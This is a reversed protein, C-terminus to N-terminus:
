QQKNERDWLETATQLHEGAMATTRAADDILDGLSATFAMSDDVHELNGFQLSRDLEISLARLREVASRLDTELEMLAGGIDVGDARNDRTPFTIVTANQGPEM